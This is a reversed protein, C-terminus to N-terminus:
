ILYDYGRLLNFKVGIRKLEKEYNENVVREYEFIMKIFQVIVNRQTYISLSSVTAMFNYIWYYFDGNEKRDEIRVKINLEKIEDNNDIIVFKLYEIILLKFEEIINEREVASLLESIYLANGIMMFLVHNCTSIDMLIDTDTRYSDEHLNVGRLMDIFERNINIPTKM